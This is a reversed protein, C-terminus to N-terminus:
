NSGCLVDTGFAASNFKFMQYLTLSGSVVFLLHNHTTM